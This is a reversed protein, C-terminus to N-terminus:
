PQFKWFRANKKSPVARLLRDNPPHGHNILSHMDSIVSKNDAYHFHGILTTNVASADISDVGNVITIGQDVYGARSYNGHNKQSLWLAMDNKAAYLTFRSGIGNMGPVSQEKFIKADIDPAALIVQCFLRKNKGRMQTVLDKLAYTLIDNGMSHAIVHIKKAGAAIVVRELFKQLYLRSYGANTEDHNYGKRSIKGLTPWTFMMPVGDFELDYSIQATRWAAEEFSTSFGHIFVLAQNKDSSGILDRLREFYNVSDLPTTSLLVVHKKRHERFELKWLKPREIRGKKHKPDRPISVECIGWHVKDGRYKGYLKGPKESRSFKKGLKIKQTPRRNTGYFVEITYHKPEGTVVPTRKVIQPLVSNVTAPEYGGVYSLFDMVTTQDVNTVSSSIIEGIQSSIENFVQYKEPLLVKEDPDVYRGLNLKRWGERVKHNWVGCVNPQLNNLIESASVPGLGNIQKIFRRYRKALATKKNLLLKLEGKFNEVGNIQIINKARKLGGATIGGASLQGILHVLDKRKIKNLKTPLEKNYYHRLDDRVVKVDRYAPHNTYPQFDNVYRQIKKSISRSLNFVAM